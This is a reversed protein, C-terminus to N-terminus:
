RSDRRHTLDREGRDDVGHRTTGAPHDAVRGRQHRRHRVLGAADLGSPQEAAHDTRAGVAVVEGGIGDIASGGGQQDLVLHWERYRLHDHGIRAGRHPGDRRGHPAIRRVRQVHDPDGPRVPLGRDHRQQALDHVMGATAAPDDAGERAGARRGLRGLERRPESCHAVGAEVGHRHLHGRMREVQMADVSGGERDDDVRVEPDVVEVEVARDLRVECRLRLEEIRPTCRDPHDVHVIHM